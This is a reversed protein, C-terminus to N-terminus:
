ANFKKYVISTSFQRQNPKIMFKIRKICKSYHRLMFNVLFIIRRGVIVQVVCYYNSCLPIMKISVFLKTSLLSTEVQILKIKVKSRFKLKFM